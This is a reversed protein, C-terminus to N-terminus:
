YNKSKLLAESKMEYTLGMLTANIRVKFRVPGVGKAMWIEQSMSSGTSDSSEARVLICDKFTGAPTVVTESLSVIRSPTPEQDDGSMWTTGVALPAKLITDVEAKSLPTRYSLYVKDDAFMYADSTDTDAGDVNITIFHMANRGDFATATGGTGITTMLIFNTDAPAGTRTMISQGELTLQKGAGGPVMYDSPIGPGAAPNNPTDDDKSCSMFTVGMLLIAITIKRAPM